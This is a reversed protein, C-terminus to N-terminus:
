ANVLIWKQVSDKPLNDSDLTSDKWPIQEGDEIYSEITGLIAERVNTTAEEITKGCSGVGPLNLVIASFTGDDEAIYCIHCRYVNTDRPWDLSFAAHRSENKLELVVSM